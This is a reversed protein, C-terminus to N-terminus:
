RSGTIFARVDNAFSEATDGLYLMHGSEYNRYTVRDAPLKGQKIQNEAGAPPTVLDFYGSAVLVRLKENRRMATALDVAYAQGAPVGVRSYNWKFNLGEWVISGYPIPMEVKLDRHLMDHFAAVFGPVYKGMAPDDSVPDGGSNASKMTYRSDYLGADLGQDALIQKLFSPPSIQLNSRLWTEASLGTLAALRSAIRTKEEGSITGANLQAIANAYENAAFTKAEGYIQEATRGARDIRQHYWATAALGPLPLGVEQNPGAPPATNPAPRLGANLAVGLLIIGDVTIGRM